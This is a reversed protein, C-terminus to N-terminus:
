LKYMKDLIPKAEAQRLDLLEKPSLNMKKAKKEIRYLNDILNIAIDAGGSKKSGKGRAKKAEV